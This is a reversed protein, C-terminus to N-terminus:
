RDILMVLNVVSMSTVILLLAIVKCLLRRRLKEYRDAYEQQLENGRRKVSKLIRRTLDLRDATYIRVVEEYQTETLWPLLDAFAKAENRATLRYTHAMLYGELQRIGSSAEGRTFASRDSRTM